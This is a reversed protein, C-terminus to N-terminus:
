AHHVNERGYTMERETYEKIEREAEAETDATCFFDGDLYVVFHERAPKIEFM